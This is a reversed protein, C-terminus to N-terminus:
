FAFFRYMSAFIRRQVMESECINHLLILTKSVNQLYNHFYLSLSLFLSHTLAHTHTHTLSFTLLTPLKPRCFQLIRLLRNVPYQVDTYENTLCHVRCYSIIFFLRILFHRTVATHLDITLISLIAFIM